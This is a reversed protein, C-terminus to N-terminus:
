QQLIRAIEAQQLELQARVNPNTLDAGKGVDVMNLPQLYLDGGKVPP